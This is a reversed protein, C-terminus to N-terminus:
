KENRGAYKVIGNKLYHDPHILSIFARFLFDAAELIELRKKQWHPSKLLDFYSSM